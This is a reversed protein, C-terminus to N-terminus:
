KGLLWRVGKTTDEVFGKSVKMDPFFFGFGM